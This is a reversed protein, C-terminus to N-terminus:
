VSVAPVGAVAVPLGAARGGGGANKGEAAPATAPATAAGTARRIKADLAALSDTHIAKKAGRCMYLKIFDVLEKPWTVAPDQVMADFAKGVFAPGALCLAKIVGWQFPTWNIAGTAPRALWKMAEGALTGTWTILDTLIITGPLQTLEREHFDMQERLYVHPNAKKVPSTQIVVKKGKGGKGGSARKALAPGGTHGEPQADSHTLEADDASSGGGGDGVRKRPGRGSAAPPGGTAAPPGGGGRPGKPPAHGGRPGKPTPAM